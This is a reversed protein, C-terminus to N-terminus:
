SRDPGFIVKWSKTNIVEFGAAVLQARIRNAQGPWFRLRIPRDGSDPIFDFSRGLWPVIPQNVWRIRRETHKLQDPVRYVRQSFRSPWLMLLGQYIQLHGYGIASMAYPELAVNFTPPQTEAGAMAMSGLSLRATATGITPVTSSM